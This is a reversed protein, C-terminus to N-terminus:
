FWGVEVSLIYLCLLSLIPGGWIMLASKWGLSKAVDRQNRWSIFFAPHNAGKMLVTKPNLDFDDASVTAGANTAQASGSSSDPYKIGAMAWAAPNTIGAKLMAAAIKEQQTMDRSGVAGPPASLRIIEPGDGGISSSLARTGELPGVGAAEPAGAASTLMKSLNLNLNATFGSITRVPMTNVTVGPNEALTGLIFLANKPKICYEEVKLKKDNAVGHRSLLGAVNAPIEPRSSFFFTDYQECFDRHLDVEAGQPNVLMRGTNDDIYFPLHLSEDVVKVWEKSKGEQKMQWVLTRYYYCPMATIPAPLTYPGAALGSVEILGLSASRIKSFPTNLILRRRELLRFGRAFLYVGVCVGAILGLEVKGHMAPFPALGIVASESPSDWVCEVTPALM